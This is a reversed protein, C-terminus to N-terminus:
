SFLVRINIRFRYFINKQYTMGISEDKNKVRNIIENM